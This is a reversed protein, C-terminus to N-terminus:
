DRNLQKVLESSNLKLLKSLQYAVTSIDEVEAPDVYVSGVQLSEAIKIGNRDQISGRRAPLEIKKCQQAKALKIYKEHDVLQIRSLHVALTIFAMILFVGIINAWFKHKKLPLV